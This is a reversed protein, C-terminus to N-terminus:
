QFVHPRPFQGDRARDLLQPVHGILIKSEGLDIVMASQALSKRFHDVRLAFSRLLDHGDHASHQARPRRVVDQDGAGVSANKAGHPSQAAGRFKM